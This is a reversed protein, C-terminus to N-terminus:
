ASLGFNHSLIRLFSCISINQLILQFALLKIFRCLGHLVKFFTVPRIDIQISFEVNGRLLKYLKPTCTGSPRTRLYWGLSHTTGSSSTPLYVESPTCHVSQESHSIRGVRLSVGSVKEDLKGALFVQLPCFVLNYRYFWTKSDAGSPAYREGQEFRAARQARVKDIGSSSFHRCGQEFLLM